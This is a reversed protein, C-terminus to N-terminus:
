SSRNRSGCTTSRISTKSFTPKLGGWGTDAASEGSGMKFNGAPIRVLEMKVGGGLDAAHKKWPDQPESSVGKESKLADLRVQPSEVRLGHPKEIEIIWTDKALMKRFVPHLGEFDDCMIVIKGVLEEKEPDVKTIRAFVLAKGPLPPLTGSTKSPETGEAFAAAMMGLSLLTAYYFHQNM